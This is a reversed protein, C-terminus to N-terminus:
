GDRQADARPAERDRAIELVIWTEDRVEFRGRIAVAAVQEVEPLREAEVVLVRGGGAVFRALQEPGLFAEVPREGYYTVANAIDAARYLGVREHAGALRAVAEAIPRPSRAADLGPLVFAYAIWQGLWVLAACAVVRRVAVRTRTALWRELALAFLLAFAPEVPLLYRLRKGSAASFFVLTTAIWALLFRWRDREGSTALGRRAVAIALPLLALWPLLDVPFKELYYSFRQAHPAGAAIRGFVNDIVAVEFWGAPALAAAATLWVLGPGLSLALGWAPLLSPLTRVRRQWALYAAISLVPVVFGVPGKTLVALGLAAHLAALNRGRRGAGAEIRWFALLAATECLALLTDLQVTRARFSWDITTMLAIGALTGAARGALLTGFAMAIAITAVGAIASPLRAAVETVRGLPAGAAAALWYFLPPKQTYPAGDLHLLVLGAAGHEFSRMEEAVLAYRPEDPPWLDAAGLRTLVLLLAAAVVLRRARPAALPALVENM